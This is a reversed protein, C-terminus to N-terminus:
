AEGRLAKIAIHDRDRIFRDRFSIKLLEQFNLEPWQPDALEATTTYVDYYGALMNASMRVWRTQALTAAELASANWSNTRGDVSLKVQWFFPDNQRNAALFLCVPVIEGLLEPAIAPDVLYVENLAKNEFVATELRWEEGERVRVWDHRNPKRCPLTTLTKKVGLTEGYNTALRLRAPDFPDPAASDQPRPTDNPIDNNNERDPMEPEKLYNPQSGPATM